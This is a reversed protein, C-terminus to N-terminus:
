EVEPVECNECNSHNVLGEEHRNLAFYHVKLKWKGENNKHWLNHKGALGCAQFLFRMKNDYVSWSKEFRGEKVFNKHLEEVEEKTFGHGYAVLNERGMKNMIWLIESESQSPLRYPRGETKETLAKARAGKV